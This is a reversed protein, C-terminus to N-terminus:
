NKENPNKGGNQHFVVGGTAGACASILVKGGKRRTGVTAVTTGSFGVNQTRRTQWEVVGARSINIVFSLNPYL